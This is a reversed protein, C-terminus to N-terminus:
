PDNLLADLFAIEMDEVVHYLSGGWFFQDGEFQGFIALFEVIIPELVEPFGLVIDGWADVVHFEEM